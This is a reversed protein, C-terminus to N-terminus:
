RLADRVWSLRSLNIDGPVTCDAGIIVGKPDEIERLIDKTYAEIEERKGTHLISGSTNPFGGILVKQPFIQRAEKFSIGEVTRAWSIAETPYNAYDTLRNKVGGYGCIHLINKGGVEKSAVLVQLESPSICEEYYDQPFLSIRPNQVSLYIGTIKIEKVLKGALVALGKGIKELADSVLEPDDRLFGILKQAGIIFRLSTLPSFINYFYPLDPYKEYIESVLKYQLNIWPDEGDIEEFIKLDSVKELSGKHPYFFFGDSMIKVLDPKFNKIFSLHAKVSNSVLRKEKTADGTEAEPLFHFWFGVPIRETKEFSFTKLILEKENGM